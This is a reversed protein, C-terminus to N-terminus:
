DKIVTKQDLIARLQGYVMTPYIEIAKNLLAVDEVTFDGKTPLSVFLEYRAAKDAPTLGASDSILANRFGKLATAPLGNEMAESGDANLLATTFDYRM